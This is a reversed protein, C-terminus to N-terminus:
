TGHSILALGFLTGDPFECDQKDSPVCHHLWRCHGVISHNGSCGSFFVSVVNRSSKRNCVFVHEPLTWPSLRNAKYLTQSVPLIKHTGFFLPTWGWNLALQTGYLALPMRADGDFGGGDRWVLYSAYGMGCYLTTWVPPFAWKPPTWSPKKLQFLLLTEM